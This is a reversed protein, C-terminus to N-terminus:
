GIKELSKLIMPLESPPSFRLSTMLQVKAKAHNKQAFFIAGLSAYGIGMTPCRAIVAQYCRVADDFDGQKQFIWGMILYGPVAFDRYEDVMKQAWKFADAFWGDQFLQLSLKKLFYYDGQEAKSLTGITTAVMAMYDPDDPALGDIADLALSIGDISPDSTAPITTNISDLHRSSPTYLWEQTLDLERSTIWSVGGASQTLFTLYPFCVSYFMTTGYRATLQSIAPAMVTDSLGFDSVLILGDPRLHRQIQIFHDRLQPIYNFQLNRRSGPLSQIFARIDAKEDPTWHPLQDIPIARTTEDIVTVLQPALHRAKPAGLDQFLAVIEAESLRTPPFVTTDQIMPDSTLSTQIMVESLVGNSYRVHRADLSDLLYASYCLLAPEATAIDLHALEMVQFRLHARHPKFFSAQALARITEPSGDTLHLVTDAYVAPYHSKLADLVYKALLGLGAGFEYIHYPGGGSSQAISAALDAVQRGFVPGNRSSFPINQTFFVDM